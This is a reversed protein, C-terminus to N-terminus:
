SRAEVTDTDRGSRFVVGPTAGTVETGDVIETGNVLVHEIGVAGGYLRGAGLVAPVHRAGHNQLTFLDPRGRLLAVTDPNARLWAANADLIRAEARQVDARDFAFYIPKLEPTTAFEGVADPAKPVYRPQAAAARELAGQVRPAAFVASPLVLMTIVFLVRISPRKM